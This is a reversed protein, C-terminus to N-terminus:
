RFRHESGSQRWWAQLVWNEADYYLPLTKPHGFKDWYAVRHTAIYWNPVVYEGYLLVRDLAHAAAILGKRDPAYVLKEVLADVVPDKIGASNNSCEQDATSSHWMNLQENGPSQSQPFSAVMMDFNFSRSRQVYLSVDVTRYNLEIGLKRLNHAYPALIREFGKQALLFEVDFPEGAANRLRGDRVTWGAEELLAKAARLNRRLAGPEATDAPRWIQTFIEPSLTDRYPELLALEDGEPLGRAALESNSFYSDCRTYQNYFLNRNSWAFDFALALARRVRRDKFRDRRTNMVFGQMGANNRHALEEKVIRGDVFQPGVYDRAWQKSNSVLAFDYEGAKLAELHVTEDSYYKYTIREFNFMGRRTSLARGWYNPNRVYTIDKGLRYKGITYPGSGIPSIRTLKDFEAGEVWKRSFVQMQAAILHLEPNRKVFDFRVTREDLVVAQKIDAWYFRFQPHGKDSKLTDFTFKVDEALVPDGNSFRARPDLRFTVSLGDDALQIDEALHAYLSYPEDASQVMLPELMLAGLGDVSVGKLIFPNFSDYNGFGSLILEGGQPAKPDVYDFHDFGAPYKPTYGLAVSPAASATSSVAVLMWLTIVLRLVPVCSEKQVLAM